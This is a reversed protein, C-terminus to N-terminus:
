GSPEIKPGAGEPVNPVSSFLPIEEIFDYFEKTVSDYNTWIWYFAVALSVVIIVVAVVFGMEM